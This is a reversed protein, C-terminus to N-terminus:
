RPRGVPRKLAGRRRLSVLLSAIAGLGLLALSAPEPASAVSASISFTATLAGSNDGYFGPAEDFFFADAFGLFLRTATAPVHFRQTTGGTDTVGDGIFFVQRLAPSLDTFDEPDSFGLRSPAPDAPESGDLFLGVLFMTRNTHTLGAIGGFSEIDTFPFDTGGDPGNVFSGFPSVVGTVSGFTLIRGPGATFGVSPPLLGAGGGSPAPPAAHGAGFIHAQADVVLLDAVAQVPALLLVVAAFAWGCLVKRSSVRM